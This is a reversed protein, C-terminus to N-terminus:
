APLGYAGDEVYGAVEVPVYVVRFGKQAASREQVSATVQNDCECVGEGLISCAISFAYSV